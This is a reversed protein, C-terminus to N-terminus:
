STSQEIATRSSIVASKYGRLVDFNRIRILPLHWLCRVSYVCAVALPALWVTFAPKAYVRLPILAPFLVGDFCPPATSATPTRELCVM